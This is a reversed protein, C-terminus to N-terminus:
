IKVITGTATVLTSLPSIGELKIGFLLSNVVVIGGVAIPSVDLAVLDVVVQVANQGTAKPSRDFNCSASALFKLMPVKVWGDM